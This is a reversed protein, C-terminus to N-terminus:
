MKAKSMRDICILFSHPYLYSAQLHHPMAWFVPLVSQSPTMKVIVPIHYFDRLYHVDHTYRDVFLSPFLLLCEAVYHAAQKPPQSSNSDRQRLLQDNRPGAIANTRGDTLSNRRRKREQKSRPGMHIRQPGSSM